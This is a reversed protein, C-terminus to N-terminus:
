KIEECFGFICSRSAVVSEEIGGYVAFREVEERVRGAEEGSHKVPLSQEERLKKCNANM